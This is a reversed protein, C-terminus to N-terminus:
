ETIKDAMEWPILQPVDPANEENTVYFQGEKFAIVEYVKGGKWVEPKGEIKVRVDKMRIKFLVPHKEDLKKMVKRIIAKKDM